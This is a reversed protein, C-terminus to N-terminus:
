GRPVEEGTLGAAQYAEWTDRDLVRARSATSPSLRALRTGVRVRLGKVTVAEVVGFYESVRHLHGAQDVRPVLPGWAVPDGVTITRYFRDLITM